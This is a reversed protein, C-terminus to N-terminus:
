GNIRVEVVNHKGKYSYYVVLKYGAECIEVDIGECKANPVRLMAERVLLDAQERYNPITLDLKDLSSGLGRDYLFRGAPIQLSNRISQAIERSTVLRQDIM